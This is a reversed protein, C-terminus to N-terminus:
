PMHRWPLDPMTGMSRVVIPGARDASRDLLPASILILSALTLGLVVALGRGLSARQVAGLTPLAAGAGFGFESRGPHCQTQRM